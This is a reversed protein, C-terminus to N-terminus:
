NLDHKCQGVNNIEGIHVASETYMYVPSALQFYFLAIEPDETAKGCM